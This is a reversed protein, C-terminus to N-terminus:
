VYTSICYAILSSIKQSADKVAEELTKKGYCYNKGETMITSRIEANTYQSIVASSLEEELKKYEASNLPIGNIDIMDPDDGYGFDSIKYTKPKSDKSIHAKLVAKNIPLMLNNTITEQGDEGLAFEIFKKAEDDKSSNKPVGLLLSDGYILNDNEYLYKEAYGKQSVLYKVASFSDKSLYPAEVFPLNDYYIWQVDTDISIGNATGNLSSKKNNEGFTNGSVRYLRNLNTYFEKLKESDLSGDESFCKPIDRVYMINAAEILNYDHVAFDLNTSEILKLFKDTDDFAKIYEPKGVIGYIYFSSPVAYQVGKNNYPTLMNDFTNKKLSKIDAIDNLDKLLGEKYYTDVPMDDMIMIDPGKGALLETNLLKLADAETKGDEETYGYEIEVPIDPYSINFSDVFSQLDNNDTLSYVKLVRPKIEIGEKVYKYQALKIEDTNSIYSIYINNDKSVYIRYTSGNRADYNKLDLLKKAKNNKLSYSYLINNELKYIKNSRTDAYATYEGKSFHLYKIIGKDGDATKGSDPDMCYVEGNDLVVYVVNEAELMAVFKANTNKVENNTYYLKGKDSFAYIIGSNDLGIMLEKHDIMLEFVNDDTYNGGKSLDLKLEKNSGDKEIIFYKTKLKEAEKQDKVLLADYLVSVFNNGNDLIKEHFPVSNNLGQWKSNKINWSNNKTDLEYLRGSEKKTDALITFKGSESEALDHVNIVDKPLSITTESYYTYEKKSNSDNGTCGTLVLSFMLFMFISFNKKM